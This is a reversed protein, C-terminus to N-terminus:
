RRRSRARRSRENDERTDQAAEAESLRQEEETMPSYLWWVFNLVLIFLFVLTAIGNLFLEVFPYSGRVSNSTLLLLLLIGHLLPQKGRLVRWFSWLM